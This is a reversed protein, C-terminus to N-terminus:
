RELRSNDAAVAHRSPRGVGVKAPWSRDCHGDRSQSFLAVKVTRRIRTTMGFRDPRYRLGPSSRDENATRGLARQSWARQRAVWAATQRVVM